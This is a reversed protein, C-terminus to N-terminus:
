VHARGIEPFGPVTRGHYLSWGDQGSFDQGVDRGALSGNPSMDANAPPYADNHYVCFLFPDLTPWQQGLPLIRLVAKSDASSDPSPHQDTM